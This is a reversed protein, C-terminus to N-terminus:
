RNFDRAADLFKRLLGATEGRTRKSCSLIVMLLWAAAVGMGALVRTFGIGLLGIVVLDLVLVLFLVLFVGPSPRDFTTHNKM